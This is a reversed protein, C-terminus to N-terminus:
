YTIRGGVYCHDSPGACIPIGHLVQVATPVYVFDIERDANPNPYTNGCCNVSHASSSYFGPLDARVTNFDGGLARFSAGINIAHLGTYFAFENAQNRRQQQNGGLHTACTLRKGLYTDAGACIFGRYPRDGVSFHGSTKYAANLTGHTMAGYGSYIDGCRKKSETTQLYGALGTRNRIDIFENACVESLSIGGTNSTNIMWVSINVLSARDNCDAAFAPAHSCLNYAQYAIEGASVVRTSRPAFVLGVSIIIALVTLRIAHKMTVM